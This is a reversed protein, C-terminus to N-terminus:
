ISSASRKCLPKTHHTMSASINSRSSQGHIKASDFDLIEDLETLNKFTLLCEHNHILDDQAVRTRTNRINLQGKNSRPAATQGKSNERLSNHDFSKITRVWHLLTSATPRENMRMSQYRHSQAAATCVM